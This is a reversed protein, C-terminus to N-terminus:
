PVEEGTAASWIEYWDQEDLQIKLAATAQKIREPKNTGLVVVPQSPHRLLWSYLIQDIQAGYRNAVSQVTERLRSVEPSSDTFIRGGATPSWAMPRIKKQVLYDLTGDLFPEQYLPNMEIQNTVLNKKTFANLMKFQSTTFNSVGYHKIKGSKRLSDLADALEEPNMLPGPRHILLLDIKDVHLNKLSREVSSIIHKKSHNYHKIRNEPRASDVLMIGCKTVIEIQDKLGPSEKLANGFVEECGYGGYIDAHDFSTIGSELCADIKERIRKTDTGDPDDLLRWCGYVFPSLKPGDKCLKIKKM